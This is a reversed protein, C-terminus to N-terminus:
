VYSCGRTFLQIMGLGLRTSSVDTAQCAFQENVFHPIIGLGLRISLVNTAKCCACWGNVFHQLIGDWNPPYFMPQKVHLGAM